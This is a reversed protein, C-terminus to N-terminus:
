KVYALALSKLAKAREKVGNPVKDETIIKDLNTIAGSYDKITYLAISLLELNSYYFANNSNTEKQIDSILPKLDKDQDLRISFIIHNALNKYYEPVSLKNIAQLNDIAEKYQKKNINISAKQFYSILKYGKTGEKSLKNLLNFAEQEKGAMLNEQIDSFVLSDKDAKSNTYSKYLSCAILIVIIAVIPVIFLYKYKNLRVMFTNNRTLEM